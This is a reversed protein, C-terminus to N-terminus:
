QYTCGTTVNKAISCERPGEALPADAAVQPLALAAARVPTPSDMVGLGSLTMLSVAGLLTAMLIRSM